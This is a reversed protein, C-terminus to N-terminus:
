VRQSQPNAPVLSNPGVEILDRSMQRLEALFRDRDPRRRWRITDFRAPPLGRILDALDSTAMQTAFGDDRNM